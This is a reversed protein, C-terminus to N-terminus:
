NYVPQLSVGMRRKRMEFSEFHQNTTLCETWIEECWWFRSITDPVHYGSTPRPNWRDLHLADGDYRTACQIQVCTTSVIIQTTLKKHEKPQCYIYRSIIIGEPRPTERIINKWNGKAFETRYHLWNFPSRSRLQSKLSGSVLCHLQHFVEIQALYGAALIRLGSSLVILIQGLVKWRRRQSHAM